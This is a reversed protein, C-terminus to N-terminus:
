AALTRLMLAKSVPSLFHIITYAGSFYRFILRGCHHFAVGGLQGGAKEKARGESCDRAGEDKLGGAFVMVGQEDSLPGGGEKQEPDVVLHDLLVSGVSMHILFGPEDGLGEEKGRKGRRKFAPM